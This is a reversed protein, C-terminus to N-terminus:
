ILTSHYMGVLDSFWVITRTGGFYKKHFLAFKGFDM